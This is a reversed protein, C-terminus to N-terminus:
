STESFLHADIPQRGAFGGDVPHWHSVAEEGHRWCLYVPQDDRLSLFDVRGGEFGKFECGLESLERLLENVRFAHQEAALRAALVAPPEIPDEADPDGPDTAIALEFAEVAARWEAHGILLDGVIPRILPLLRNAEDVTFLRPDEAV